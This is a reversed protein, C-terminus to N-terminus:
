GRRERRGAWFLFASAGLMLAPWWVDAHLEALVTQPPAVTLHYLGMALLIVGYLGLILATLTWISVMEHGESTKSDRTQDTM